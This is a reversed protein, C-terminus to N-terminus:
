TRTTTAANARRRGTAASCSRATYAGGDQRMHLQANQIIVPFCLSAEKINYGYIRIDKFFIICTDLINTNKETQYLKLTYSWYVHIKFNDRNKVESVNFYYQIINHKLCM